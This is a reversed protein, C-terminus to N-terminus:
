YGDLYDEVSAKEQEFTPLLVRLAETNDARGAQEMQACLEGLALAGVTRASSKLKHALASATETQGAACAARLEETIQEASIRFDYLFERITADDDGVLAKLINVDVPLSTEHEPNQPNDEVLPLESLSAEGAVPLWKELMAQLDALQAPKFLCADMGVARSQEVESKLANATLAVIPIHQSSDLEAARIAATLQFGDMLPMNLDSLLLAYDGSRWRYLAEEGNSAVDAAFGLLALQRLIVKQNTENDEAVLILRGHQRAHERSPPMFDHEKKGHYPVENEVPMRGAAIAVDKLFEHRTLINGDVVLLDNNEVRPRQRLGRRLIVIFHVEHVSHISSVARLEDLPPVAEIADIILIWQGEPLTPLLVKAAELNTVREVVAGGYVLYRSLDGILDDPDDPDDVMLCSLGAVMSPAAVSPFKKPVFAFPLRATFLSGKGLESHVTIEGGMLEVLQRSISLGLGTGGFRRTTSSDAQSFPMFLRSQTETNMGIGNDAIQFEVIAQEPGLEVLEARVSVLGLRDQGGSFKLANSVLNVLVQRLRSQDGIIEEPIAPDTFLTFEVNQKKAMNALMGCVGNVTSDLHMPANEIEIRGAEAKSLDLIDNIIDLLSYASERILDVMEVQYGKLSSQQLVDVMGIVGNMPTRIEHSMTALFASKAHNAQEADLRAQELDATRVAVKNELEENLQHLLVEARQQDEIVGLMIQRSQNATDLLEQLEEHAELIKTEAQKRETIDQTTGIGTIARGEADREIIARDRVWRIEGDVVIRHEIDYSAGAVAEDWDNLVRERDDPHLTSAFIELDIAKGEPFGFLRYAEKSWDLRGSAIDITWSGVKSVAQALNLSDESHKLALETRKRETIDRMICIAYWQKKSKFPSLSLEVTVKSGDKRSVPTEVIKDIVQRDGTEMLISFGRMINVYDSSSIILQQMQEGLVEKRSYQFMKQAALNWESIRGQKDIVIIADQTSANIKQNVLEIYRQNAQMKRFVMFYLVPFMIITFIVADILNAGEHSLRFPLKFLIEPLWVMLLLEIGLVSMGVVIMVGLPTNLLPLSKWNKM